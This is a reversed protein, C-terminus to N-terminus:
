SSAIAQARSRPNFRGNRPPARQFDGHGLGDLEPAVRLERGAIGSEADDPAAGHHRAAAADFPHAPLRRQRGRQDGCGGRPRRRFLVIEYVIWSCTPCKSIKTDPATARLSCPLNAFLAELM